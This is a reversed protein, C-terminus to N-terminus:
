AHRVDEHAASERDRREDAGGAVCKRGAIETVDRAGEDEGAQRKLLEGARDAARRSNRQVGGVCDRQEGGASHEPQADM